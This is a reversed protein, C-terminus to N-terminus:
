AVKNHRDDWPIIEISDYFECWEDHDSDTGLYMDTICDRLMWDLESFDPENCIDFLLSKINTDSPEDYYYYEVIWRVIGMQEDPDRSIYFGEDDNLTVLYLPPHTVEYWLNFDKEPM